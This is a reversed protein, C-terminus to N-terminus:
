SYDALPLFSWFPIRIEPTLKTTKFWQGHSSPGLSAASVCSRAGQETPKDYLLNFAKIALAQSGVAATIDRMLDSKCAGPCVSTVIVEDWPGRLTALEALSNSVYQAFLKSRASALMGDYKGDRPQANCARLVNGGDKGFGPIDSTEIWRHAESTVVTLCSQQKTVLESKEMKPLLLLGLLATGMFNVQLASEWGDISAKWATPSMGANLIVVDLRDLDREAKSAFSQIATFSDM